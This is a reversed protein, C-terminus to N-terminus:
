LILYAEQKLEYKLMSVSEINFTNKEIWAPILNYFLNRIYATLTNIKKKFVNEVFDVALNNNTAKDFKTLINILTIAM